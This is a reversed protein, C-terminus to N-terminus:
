LKVLGREVRYKALIQRETLKPKGIFYAIIANPIAMVLVIFSFELFSWAAIMVIAAVIAPILKVKRRFAKGGGIRACGGVIVAPLLLLLIPIKGGFGLFYLSLVAPIAAALSSVIALTTNEQEMLEVYYERAMEKEAEKM